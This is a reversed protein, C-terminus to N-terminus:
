EIPISDGSLGQACTNETSRGYSAATFTALAEGDVCTAIYSTGWAVAAITRDDPLLPDSVVLSRTWVPADCHPDVPMSRVVGALATVTDPCGADCRYVLVIAGHEANHLWFGRELDTYIQDWAAWVPYHPGSTPPNTAWAVATGPLVHPSDVIPFTRVTGCTGLPHEDSAPRPPDVCAACALAIAANCLPPSILRIVPLEQDAARDM